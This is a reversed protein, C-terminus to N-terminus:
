QHIISYWPHNKVQIIGDTDLSPLVRSSGILIKHLKDNYLQDAPDLSNVHVFGSSHIYLGNGMYLAVHTVRKGGFFLLDGSVLNRFDTFDPHQGYRVQQSADRALIIGQSYYSTKTLGSCDTAKCSTGGWLYPVGNLQKAVSIISQVDITRSTWEQFSLCDNKKVFATRGDPFRVQLFGKTESISEFLDDLVLDSVHSANKKPASLAYGVTENFVFRKSQKWEKMEAETKLTIGADDAWGIYQDPSQIRYWGNKEELIKVPMGMLVQTAMEAAERPEFRMNVVSLTVLGWVKDGLSAEPFVRISDVFQIGKAALLQAVQKKGEPLNTEGKVTIPRKLTDKLLVNLIAVRKDPVLQKQILQIEANLSKFSTTQADVELGISIVLLVVFGIKRFINKMM